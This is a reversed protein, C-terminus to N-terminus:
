FLPLTETYLLSPSAMETPTEITQEGSGSLLTISKSRCYNKLFFLIQKASNLPVEAKVCERDEVKYTVTSAIHIGKASDRQMEDQFNDFEMWAQLGYGQLMSICVLPLNDYYDLYREATIRKGQYLRAGSEIEYVPGTRYDLMSGESLYSISSTILEWSATEAKQVKAFTLYNRQLEQIHWDTNPGAEVGSAFSAFGIKLHQIENM